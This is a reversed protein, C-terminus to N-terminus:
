ADAGLVLKPMVTKSPIGQEVAYAIAALNGIEYSTLKMIGIITAFSFMKTFSRLCVTYAERELAREFEAVMDMENETQPILKKYKTGSLENIADGVTETAMMRVLLDRPASATPAVLLDEMQAEDLGWFKGRIVALLNYADIDLDIIKTIDMSRVSRRARSLHQYVIKDFYTDFVQISGGEGYAAAAKSIEEGFRTMNLGAVAEELDKAVLAKVVIDRQKVMEEARLNIHSEIEEQTKGLVKGKLIAKLNSVMFRIYYADLIPPKGATRGINYHLFALHERIVSEIGRATYPKPADAVVKEYITNRMRTVLEDLNRSESLTQYDERRLLKGRQSYSKVSAYVNKGRGMM